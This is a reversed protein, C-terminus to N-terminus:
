LKQLFKSSMDIEDFLKNNALGFVGTKNKSILGKKKQNIRHILSRANPELLTTDSRSDENKVDDLAGLTKPYRDQL